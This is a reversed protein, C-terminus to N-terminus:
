EQGTDDDAETFVSNLFLDLELEGELSRMGLDILAEERLANLDDTYDVWLTRTQRDLIAGEGKMDTVVITLDVDQLIGSM